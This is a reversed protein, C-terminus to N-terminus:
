NEDTQVPVQAITAQIVAIDAQAEVLAVTDGEVTITGMLMEQHAEREGRLLGLAVSRDMSVTATAAAATGTSARYGTADARVHYSAASGDSDVVRYEVVVDTPAGQPRTVARLAGDIADVWEPSALTPV